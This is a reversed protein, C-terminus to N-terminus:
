DGKLYAIKIEPGLKAMRSPTEEIKLPGPKPNGRYNPDFFGLGAPFSPGLFRWLPWFGFIDRGFFVFFRLFEFDLYMEYAEDLLIGCRKFRM